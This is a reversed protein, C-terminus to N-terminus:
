ADNPCASVNLVIKSRNYLLNLEEGFICPASQCAALPSSDWEPRYVELGLDGLPALWNVRREKKRGVFVLPKSKPEGGLRSYAATDSGVAPLHRIKPHVVSRHICFYHDYLDAEQNPDKIWTPGEVCWGIMQRVGCEERLQELVRRPYTFTSLTLGFCGPTSSLERTAGIM